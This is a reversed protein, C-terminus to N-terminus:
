HVVKNEELHKIVKNNSLDNLWELVCALCLTESHTWSVEGDRGFLSIFVRFERYNSLLEELKTCLEEIRDDDRNM